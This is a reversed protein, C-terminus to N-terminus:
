IYNKPRFAKLVSYWLTSPFSLFFCIVAYM